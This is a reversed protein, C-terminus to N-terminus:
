WNEIENSGQPTCCKNCIWNFTAVLLLIFRLEEMQKLLLTNSRSWHYFSEYFNINEEYISDVNFCDMTFSVSNRNNNSLLIETKQEQKIENASLRGSVM